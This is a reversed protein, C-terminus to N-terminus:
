SVVAGIDASVVHPPVGAEAGEPPVHECRYTTPNCTWRGGVDYVLGHETRHVACQDDSSCGPLCAGTGLVCEYGDRCENETVSPECAAACVRASVGADDDGTAVCVGCPCTEELDPDCADPDIPATTCYGGVWSAYPVATGGDPHGIIPDGLGGLMGSEEGICVPSHLCGLASTCPRGVDCEPVSGDAPSAGGDPQGADHDADAEGSDQSASADAEGGDQSASADAEGSDFPASVDPAGSDTATEGSQLEASDLVLSCGALALIWGCGVSPGVRTRWLGGGRDM